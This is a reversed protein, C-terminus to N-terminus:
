RGHWYSAGGEDEGAAAGFAGKLDAGLLHQAFLAAEFPLADEADGDAGEVAQEEGLALV